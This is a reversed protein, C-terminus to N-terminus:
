KVKYVLFRPKFLKFLNGLTISCTVFGVSLSLIERDPVHIKVKYNAFIFHMSFNYGDHLFSLFIKWKAEGTTLINDYKFLHM